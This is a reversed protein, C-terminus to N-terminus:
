VLLGDIRIPLDRIRRGTVHYVASGNGGAAAVTARSTLFGRRSVSRPKSTFDASMCCEQMFGKWEINEPVRV